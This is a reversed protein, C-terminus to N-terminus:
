RHYVLQSHPLSCSLDNMTGVAATCAAAPPRHMAPHAPSAARLLSGEPFRWLVPKRRRAIGECIGAAVPSRGAVGACLEYRCCSKDVLYSHPGLPVARCGLRCLLCSVFM